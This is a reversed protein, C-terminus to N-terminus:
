PLRESVYKMIEERFSRTFARQLGPSTCCKFDSATYVSFTYFLDSISHFRKLLEGAKEQNDHLRRLVSPQPIPTKLPNKLGLLTEWRMLKFVAGASSEFCWVTLTVRADPYRFTSPKSVCDILLVWQERCIRTGSSECQM